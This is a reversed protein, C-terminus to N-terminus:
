SPVRTFRCVSRVYILLHVGGLWLACVHEGKVKSAFNFFKISGELKQVKLGFM